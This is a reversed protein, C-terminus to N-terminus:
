MDTCEMGIFLWKWKIYDRIKSHFNPCYNKENVLNNMYRYLGLLTSIKTQKGKVITKGLIVGNQIQCHRRTAGERIRWIVNSDVNLHLM